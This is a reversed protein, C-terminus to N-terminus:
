ANRSRSRKRRCAWRRAQIHEPCSRGTLVGLRPMDRRNDPDRGGLQALEDGYYLQPIGPLTFLVVLALDYRRQQEAPSVDKPIETAFRPVDHNDIFSVLQGLGDRGLEAQLREITEVLGGLGEDLAFAHILAGHLPYGLVADFGTDLYTRLDKPDGSFVEALLFLEPRVGRVAPIWRDRFYDPSVHKATDMRVGRFDFRELWGVSMDTLYTSVDEREQAFDAAGERFPCDVVPNGDEACTEPDHFWQPRQEVIRAHDGPHNVVMDAVLRIGKASLTRSLDALEAETGLRPEVEGDDPDAFDAWYGHFPCWNTKAYSQRYVPTLWLADIGLERLYPARQALGAFDGGHFKIPDAPDFCDALGRENNARDGDVFRDTMVLYIVTPRWPVTALAPSEAHVVPAVPEPRACAALGFLTVAVLTRFM